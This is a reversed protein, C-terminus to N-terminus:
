ALQRNMDPVASPHQPEELRQVEQTLTSSTSSSSQLKSKLHMHHQHQMHKFYWQMLPFNIEDHLNGTDQNNAGDETIQSGNPLTHLTPSYLDWSSTQKHQIDNSHVIKLRTWLIKFTECKQPLLM